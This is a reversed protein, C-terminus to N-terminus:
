EEEKNEIFLVYNNNETCVEKYLSTVRENKLKLYRKCKDKKSCNNNKDNSCYYICDM